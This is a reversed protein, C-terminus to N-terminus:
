LPWWPWRRRNFKKEAELFMKEMQREEDHRKQMAYLEIMAHNLAIILEDRTLADIPRGLYTPNIM